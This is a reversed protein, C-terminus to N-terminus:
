FADNTITPLKGALVSLGSGTFVYMQLKSCFIYPRLYLKSPTLIKLKKIPNLTVLYLLFNELFKGSPNLNDANSSVRKKYAATRIVIVKFNPL